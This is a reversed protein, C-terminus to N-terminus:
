WAVYQNMIMINHNVMMLKKHPVDNNEYSLSHTVDNPYTNMDWRCQGSEDYNNIPELPPLPPIYEINWDNFSQDAILIKIKNM